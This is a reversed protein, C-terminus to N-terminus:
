TWTMKIYGEVEIMSQNEVEERPLSPVVLMDMGIGLPRDLPPLTPLLVRSTPM